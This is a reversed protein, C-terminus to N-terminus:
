RTVMSRYRRACIGAVLVRPSPMAVLAINV